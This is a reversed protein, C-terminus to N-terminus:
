KVNILDLVKKVLAEEEGANYDVQFDSQAYYEKRQEYIERAQSQTKDKLLPRGGDLATRKWCLEFPTNLWVLILPIEINEKMEKIVELGGYNLSGGGLSVVAGKTVGKQIDAYLKSLLSQLTKKEEERFKKWGISGILRELSKFQDADKYKVLVEDDLDCIM